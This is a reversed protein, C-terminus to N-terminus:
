TCDSSHRLIKRSKLNLLRLDEDEAEFEDSIHGAALDYNECRRMNHKNAQKFTRRSALKPM